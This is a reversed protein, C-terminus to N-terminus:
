AMWGVWARESAGTAARGRHRLHQRAHEVALSEERVVDVVNQSPNILVPLTTDVREVRHHTTATTMARAEKKLGGGIM